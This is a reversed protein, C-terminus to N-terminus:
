FCNHFCMLTHSGDDTDNQLKFSKATAMSDLSVVLCPTNWVLLAGEEEYKGNLIHSIASMMLCVLCQLMASFAALSEDNQLKPTVITVIILLPLFLLTRVESLHRLKKRRPLFM